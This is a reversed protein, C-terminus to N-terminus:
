RNLQVPREVSPWFVHPHTSVHTIQGFSRERTCAHCGHGHCEGWGRVGRLPLLPVRFFYIIDSYVLKVYRPPWLFWHLQIAVKISEM